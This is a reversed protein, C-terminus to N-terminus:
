SSFAISKRASLLGAAVFALSLSAVLVLPWLPRKPPSPSAAERIAALYTAEDQLGLLLKDHIWVTPLGQFNSNRVFAIHEEVAAETAPDAMCAEFTESPIELERAAASIAVRSLSGSFLRDAMPAGKGAAEACLYALSATRANPHRPLPMTKRVLHIKQDGAQQIAKELIPHAARCFPCEFDSFEVITIHGPKWLARVTRPAQSEPKLSALAWPGAAAAVLLGLWALRGPDRQEEASSLLFFGATAALLASLDVVVCFSCLVGIVLVQLGLLGLGVVGGLIAALATFKRLSPLFSLILLGGFAGLGLAPVPVGAVRGYGLARIQECGAGTACFAPQPRLSDILLAMSFAIALLSALRLVLLSPSRVM